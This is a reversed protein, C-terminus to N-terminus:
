VGGGVAEEPAQPGISGLSIVSSFGPLEGEFALPLLAGGCVRGYVMGESDVEGEEESVGLLPAAFGKLRVGGEAVPRACTPLLGM